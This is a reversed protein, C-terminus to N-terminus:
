SEKGEDDHGRQQMRETLERAEELIARADADLQATEAKSEIIAPGGQTTEEHSGDVPHTHSHEGPHDHDTTEEARDAVIEALEVRPVSEWDDATDDVAAEAREDVADALWADHDEGHLIATVALHNACAAADGFPEACVPCLYGM